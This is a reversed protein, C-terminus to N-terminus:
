EAGGLGYYSGDFSSLNVEVDVDNTRVCCTVDTADPVYARIQAAALACVRRVSQHTKTICRLSSALQYTARTGLVRELVFFPHGMDPNESMPYSPSQGAPINKENHGTVRTGLVRELVFLPHGVDPNESTPYCL